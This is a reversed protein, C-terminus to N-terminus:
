MGQWQTHSDSPPTYGVCYITKLLFVRRGTVRALRAAESAGAQYDYHEVTPVGSGEVHCMYFAAPEPQLEKEPPPIRVVKESGPHWYGNSQGDLNYCYISVNGCKETRQTSIIYRYEGDERRFMEGPGLDKLIM